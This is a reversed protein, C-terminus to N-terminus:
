AVSSKIARGSRMEIAHHILKIFTQPDQSSNLKNDTIDKIRLQAIELVALALQLNNEPDVQTICPANFNRFEKLSLRRDEGEIFKLILVNNTNGDINFQGLQSDLKPLLLPYDGQKVSREPVTGYGLEIHHERGKKGALVSYRAMGATQGARKGGATITQGKDLSFLDLFKEQSLTLDTPFLSM